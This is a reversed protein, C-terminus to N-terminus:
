SVTIIPDLCTVDFRMSCISGQQDWKSIATVYGQLREVRTPSGAQTYTRELICSKVALMSNVLKGRFLNLDHQSMMLSLTVQIVRESVQSSILYRGVGSLKDETRLSFTTDEDWGTLEELYIASSSAHKDQYANFSDGTNSADYTFKLTKM